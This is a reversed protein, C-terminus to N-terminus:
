FCASCVLVRVPLKSLVLMAICAPSVAFAYLTLYPMFSVGEKEAAKGDEQEDNSGSERDSEKDMLRHGIM